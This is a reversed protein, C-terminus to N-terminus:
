RVRRAAAGKEELLVRVAEPVLYRVSTERELRERIMTSSIDIRPCEFLDLRFGAPAVPAIGAREAAIFRVIRALEDAAFWNGLSAVLDSGIIWFIPAADTGGLAQATEVTYSPGERELELESVEFAANGAVAARLLELRFADSFFGSLAKHPSIRAPMFLIRDLGFSVRAAEALVLHGTHVPDFSGGLVATKM